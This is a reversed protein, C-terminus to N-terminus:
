NTQRREGGGLVQRIQERSMQDPQIGPALLVQTVSCAPALDSAIQATAFRGTPDGDLILIVKDYRATLLSKQVSSIRAGLLAVVCPYGAQSVRMCDFFGEVVVV